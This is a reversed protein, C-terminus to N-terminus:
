PKATVPIPPELADIPRSMLITRFCRSTDAEGALAQCVPESLWSGGGIYLGDADPHQAFAQRGPEYALQM